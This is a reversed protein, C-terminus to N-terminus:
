SANELVRNFARGAYVKLLQLRYDASAQQDSLVDGKDLTDGALEAAAEVTESRADEGELADELAPLRVPRNVVGNAAARASTIEGGDIELGAAVGVIAYGSSPSENKVYASHQNPKQAPVELRTIIENEDLDTMFLGFFFDEAGVTREGSSSRAVVRGGLALFPAPLDSAPDAHALNGGITGMNRVMQDGVQAAAEALATANERLPGSSALTAHTSLPGISLTDGRQEIGELRDIRGIDILAGPNSLRQKMLPLLSHGGAILKAQDGNEDLLKIAEDVSSARHYDFSAPFM